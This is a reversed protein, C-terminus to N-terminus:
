RSSLLRRRLELEFWHTPQTRSRLALRARAGAATLQADLAVLDADLPGLPRGEPAGAADERRGTAPGDSVDLWRRAANRSM